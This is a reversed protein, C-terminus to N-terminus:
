MISIILRQIGNVGQIHKLFHIVNLTRPYGGYYKEWIAYSDRDAYERVTSVWSVPPRVSVAGTVMVTESALSVEARSLWVRATVSCAAVPVTTTVQFSSPM